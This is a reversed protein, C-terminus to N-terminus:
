WQAQLHRPLAAQGAAPLGAYRGSDSHLAHQPQLKAPQDADGVCWVCRSRESGIQRCVPMLGVLKKM